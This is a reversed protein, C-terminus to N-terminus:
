KQSRRGTSCDFIDTPVLNQKVAVYQQCSQEYAWVFVDSLLDVRNLEYLMGLMGDVYAQQPVDIFSM